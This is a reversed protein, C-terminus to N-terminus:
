KTRIQKALKIAKEMIAYALSDLDRQAFYDKASASNEAACCAWGYARILSELANVRDFDREYIAATEVFEDARKKYHESMARHVTDSPNRKAPNRKSYGRGAMAIGGVRKAEARAEALTSAQAVTKGSLVVKFPFEQKM